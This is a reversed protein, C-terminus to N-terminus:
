FIVQGANVYSNLSQRDYSCLCGPPPHRHSLETAAASNFRQSGFDAIGLNQETSGSLIRLFSLKYLNSVRM